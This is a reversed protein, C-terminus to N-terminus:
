PGAPPVCVGMLQDGNYPQLADLPPKVRWIHSQTVKSTPASVKESMEKVPAPVQPVVVTVYEEPTILEAMLSPAQEAAVADM